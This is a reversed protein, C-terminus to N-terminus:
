SPPVGPPPHRTAIESRLLSRRDFKGSPLRPLNPMVIIHDPILHVPVLGSACTRRIDRSSLGLRDQEPSCFAWVLAGRAGEGYVVVVVDRVGALQSLLHEIEACAILRGDRNVSHDARGVIVLELLEASIPEASDEAPQVWRALDGTAMWDEHTRATDLLAGKEDLYGIFGHRRRCWLAGQEGPAIAAVEADAGVPLVRLYTEPMPRGVPVSSAGAAARVPPDQTPHQVCIAGMETSGYLNLARGFRAAVAEALAVALRDGALVAARCHSRRRGRDVLTAAFPPTLFVLSPEFAREASVFRLLNADALLHVSAGSLLAPLLAAGLGFMHFIPVPVLLRDEAGLHLADVCCRANGLLGAASHAILKPAALSGSSRLLLMGDEGEREDCWSPPSSQPPYSDIALCEAIAEPTLPVRALVQIHHRCLPPRSLGACAPMLLVSRGSALLSLLVLVSVVTNEGELFVPDGRGIGAADYARELAACLAPLEAYRVRMDADALVGEPRTAALRALVEALRENM